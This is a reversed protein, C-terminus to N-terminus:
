DVHKATNSTNLYTKIYNIIIIIIILYESNTKTTSKLKPRLIKVYLQSLYSYIM